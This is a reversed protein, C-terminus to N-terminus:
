LCEAAVLVFYGVPAGFLLDDLMDLMGGFGDVLHGSDKLGAERKLLSATLDGLMGAVAVFVGFAVAWGISLLGWSFLSLGVSVVVSGLLAGLAGEVTKNPSVVPTMPHRGLTKGVFYAGVSGAKCVAVTTVLGLLGWAPATGGCPSLRVASLFSFLVPLYVLGVMTTGLVQLSGEVRSRGIRGAFVAALMTCLGALGALWPGPFTNPSAWGAWNLLFVAAGGVMLVPSTVAHGAARALRAFEALAVTLVLTGAIAFVYGRSWLSDLWLLGALAAVLLVGLGVRRAMPTPQNKPNETDSEPNGTQQM